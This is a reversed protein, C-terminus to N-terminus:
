FFLTMLPTTTFFYTALILTVLVSAALIATTIPPEETPIAEKLTVMQELGPANDVDTYSNPIPYAILHMKSGPPIGAVEIERWEGTRAEVCAMVDDWPEMGKIRVEWSVFTQDVIRFALLWSGNRTKRLTTEISM